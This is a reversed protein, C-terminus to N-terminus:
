KKFAINDVYITDSVGAAASPRFRLESVAGLNLSSSGKLSSTTIEVTKYTTSRTVTIWPGQVSGSRLSVQLNHNNVM